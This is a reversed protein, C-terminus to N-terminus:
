GRVDIGFRLLPQGIEIAYPGSGRRGGLAVAVAADDSVQLVPRAVRETEAGVRGVRGPVERAPLTPDTQGGAVDEQGALVRIREVVPLFEHFAGAIRADTGGTFQQVADSATIADAAAIAVGEGIASGGSRLRPRRSVM